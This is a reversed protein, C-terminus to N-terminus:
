EEESNSNSEEYDIQPKDRVISFGEEGIQVSIEKGVSSIRIPLLHKHSADVERLPMRVYKEIFKGMVVGAKEEIHKWADNGIFASGGYKSYEAALEELRTSITPDLVLLIPVYGSFNCDRAFDLEEKFRGQGSAAITVRMKFEYANKGELCDVQRGNSSKDTRRIPSKKASYPIGGISAALIPEFLYGTEQAARNDIDYLWKRWILWSALTESPMLRYELLCRPVIPEISPLRQTELIRKYKVRHKHIECLNAFYTEFDGIEEKLLLFTRAFDITKSVPRSFWELPISYYSNSLRESGTIEATLRTQNLDSAVVACLRLLEHDELHVIPGSGGLHRAKTILAKSQQDLVPFLM